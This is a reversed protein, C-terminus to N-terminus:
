GDVPHTDGRAVPGSLELELRSRVADCLRQPEDVAVHVTDAPPSQGFATRFPVPRRVIITLDTRGGVPLYAAREGEVVRLGDRGEAVKRPAHEIGAIDAFPIFAENLLGYRIWLGDDTVRHPLVVLSAYLGIIWVIGYITLALLVWRLWAWPILLELILIEVPATLIVLIVLASVISRKRYSYDREDPRYRRLLWRGLCIWLRLELAVLRALRQPMMVTLADEFAEVGSQGQSQQHRFRRVARIAQLGAVLTLAGEVIVVVAVAQGFSLWGARVLVIEIVILIPLSWKLARQLVLM